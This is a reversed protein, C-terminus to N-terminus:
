DELLDLRGDAEISERYKPFLTRAIPVLKLIKPIPGKARMDGKALATSINVNGLWFQHGVKTEMFMRVTPKLGDPVEDGRYVKHEPMDITLIADPNTNTIQLIVGSAAFQRAVEDDQFAADFVGGIYKYVEAAETFTAMNGGTTKSGWCQSLRWMDHVPAQLGVDTGLLGVPGVKATWM